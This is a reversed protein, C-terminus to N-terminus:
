SYNDPKENSRIRTTRIEQQKTEQQKTEQEEQQKKTQPLNEWNVSMQKPLLGPEVGLLAPMESSDAHLLKPDDMRWSQFRVEAEEFLLHKECVEPHLLLSCFCFQLNELIYSCHLLLLSCGLYWPDLSCFQQVVDFHRDNSMVQQRAQPHELFKQDLRCTAIQHPCQVSHVAGSIPSYETSPKIKIPTSSSTEAIISSIHM